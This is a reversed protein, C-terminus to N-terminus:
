HKPCCQNSTITESNKDNVNISGVESQRILDLVDSQNDCELAEQAMGKLVKLSTNRLAYRVRASRVPSMSLIRLGLGVLMCALHPEGAAEGCVSVPIGNEEGVQQIKSIARLISPHLVSEQDILKQKQRDSALMYQVLDNTGISLFDATEAISDLDFLASPAEILAGTPPVKTHLQSALSNVHDVAKRFDSSDLVMPFLIKIKNGRGAELIARLQTFFLEQEALSFRLGREVLAPNPDLPAGLFQPHKDGGLDLTRITVPVGDLEQLTEKYTELQEKEGPPEPSNLFLFETRFLGVGPLNHKKVDEGEQPRAINALLTVRSGDSLICKADEKSVTAATHSEYLAREAAFTNVQGSGPSITVTGKEGNVLLDTGESINALADNVGTIAPIGLSRALIATHGTSGGQETVIAAVHERDLEATDSPFLERAVVVTNPTLNDLGVDPEPGLHKMLRAKLDKIDEARDRIYEDQVESLAEIVDNLERELAQEINILDRSVRDKVRQAFQEDQLMSIHGSFIEAKERGFQTILRHELNELDEISCEIARQFRQHEEAVDSPEIDYHSPRAQHNNKYVHACGRAYGHSIPKGKLVMM